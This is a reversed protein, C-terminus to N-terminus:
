ELQNKLQFGISPNKGTAFGSSYSQYNKQDVTINQVMEVPPTILDFNLCYFISEEIIGKIKETTIKESEFNNHHISLPRKGEIFFHQDKNVFIRCVLEGLDEERNYKISDSLFNYIQIMGCYGRMEDDKVYNNDKAYHGEPFGFVNTHMMFVLTDGSFKFHAEFESVEMYKIEVFTDTVEKALEQQMTRLATKFDKFVALTTRYIEQKAASKNKLLELIEQEKKNM